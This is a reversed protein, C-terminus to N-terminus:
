LNELFTTGSQKKPELAGGGASTNASAVMEQWLAPDQDVETLLQINQATVGLLVTKDRARVLILSRRAGLPRTALIEIATAGRPNKALQPMYRRAAWLVVAMLGFVVGLALTLKGVLGPLTPGSDKGAAKAAGGGASPSMAASLDRIDQDNRIGDALAHAPLFAGFAVGLLIAALLFLIRKDRGHKM